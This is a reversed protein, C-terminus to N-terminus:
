RQREMESVVAKQIDINISNKITSSTSAEIARNKVLKQKISREDTADFYSWEIIRVESELAPVSVKRAQAVVVKPKVVKKTKNALSVKAQPAAIKTEFVYVGVGLAIFALLFVVFIGKM